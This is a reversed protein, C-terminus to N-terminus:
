GDKKGPFISFCQRLAESSTAARTCKKRLPVNRQLNCIKAFCFIVRSISSPKGDILFSYSLVGLLLTQEASRIEFPRRYLAIDIYFFNGKRLKKGDPLLMAIILHSKRWIYRGLTTDQLFEANFRQLFIAGYIKACVRLYILSDGKLDVHDQRTEIEQAGGGGM